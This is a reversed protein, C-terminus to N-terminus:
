NVFGGRGMKIVAQFKLWSSFPFILLSHWQNKSVQLSPNNSIKMKGLCSAFSCYYRDAEMGWGRRVGCGAGIIETWGPVPCPVNEVDTDTRYGCMWLQVQGVLHPRRYAAISRSM